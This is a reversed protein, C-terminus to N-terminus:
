MRVVIRGMIKSELIADIYTTNLDELTTETMIAPLKEQVNWENALKNWLVQRTAFATEASGIGLLNVGNLIFPFVTTEFSPSAVLGTSVVSGENKCARLLTNLTNGGVTDIAGAWKHRLLAKGSQDNVFDRAQITTAGLHTLYDKATTKGTIAIVEYGAKSLISVALSGVGGTSGTVVVPGDSPRQGMREMKYLAFAATFGATGITMAEAFSFQPPKHMVWDAPVRIYEAYAGSTNMGLDHGTVIVEDHAAFAQHASSEVLGAADIGPTHPYKRTIGKNGTASLADKYNLSSYLVRILVEGAPLDETNMLVINREFKGEPTETIRLARFPM